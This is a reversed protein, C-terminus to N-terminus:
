PLYLLEKQWGYYGKSNVCYHISLSLLYLPNLYQVFKVKTTHVIDPVPSDLLYQVNRIFWTIILCETTASIKRRVADWRLTRASGTWSSSIRSEFHPHSLVPRTVLQHHIWTSSEMKSPLNQKTPLLYSFYWYPVARPNIQDLKWYLHNLEFIQGDLVQHM